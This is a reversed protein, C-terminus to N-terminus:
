YPDDEIEEKDLDLKKTVPCGYNNLCCQLRNGTKILMGRCNPCKEVYKIDNLDRMYPGMNADCVNCRFFTTGKMKREIVVIEGDSCKPCKIGTSHSVEEEFQKGKIRAWTIPPSIEKVNRDPRLERVFESEELKDMPTMLFVQNRTRTLAVYFLRREEAYPYEDPSKIYNLVPDDEIQSPFGLLDNKLNIIIVEDAELGKSQHVSMFRIKLEPKKTYTIDLHKKKKKQKFLTNNVYEDIDNNYRGLILIKLDEKNNLRLIYKIIAELHLAKQTKYRDMENVPYRIIKIPKIIYDEKYYKLKKNIQNDNKLIFKSSTDNIEQSNRRSKEIKITEAGKFYDNFDIFLNVDSGNFKYISQWDDGVAFVKANTKEKLRQILKTRIINIDQYEDILIYDYSKDFKGSEILELANTIERNHDIEDGQTYELYKRYIEETIDFFIEERKKTYADAQKKSMQRFKNFDEINLDNAEFINIFTKILESFSKFMQTRRIKLIIELIEKPDRKGITINNERLLEELKEFLRGEENYYSYTEILTTGYMEHWKIKSEMEMEYKKAAEANLWRNKKDKDVGFHELYIDKEALYFDPRYKRRDYEWCIFDNVITRNTQKRSSSIEKLSLFKGSDIFRDRVVKYYCNYPYPKEYEYDIDHIFLYNAIMLEEFSKVIEGDFTQKLSGRNSIYYEELQNQYYDSHITEYRDKLTNLRKEQEYEELEEESDFKRETAPPFYYAFYEFLREIKKDDELNEKFYNRIIDDLLYRNTYKMGGCHKDVNRCFGHFTYVGVKNDDRLLNNVKKDLDKAGKGTYCLCLIKEPSIGKREILYKVKSQLTFTKGTGAGAVIRLDGEDYVVARKKTIDDIEKGDIDEFFSSNERIERDLYSENHKKIPNDEDSDSISEYNLLGEYIRIFKILKQVDENYELFEKPITLIYKTEEYPKKFQDKLEEIEDFTIYDEKEDYLRLLEHIKVNNMSVSIKQNVNLILDINGYNKKFKEIESIDTYFKKFREEELNKYLDVYDKKFQNLDEHAKKYSKKYISDLQKNLKSIKEYKKELEKLDKDLDYYGDNIFQKYKYRFGDILTGNHYVSIFKFKIGELNEIKRIKEFSENLNILDNYSLSKIIENELKWEDIWEDTWNKLFKEKDMNENLGFEFLIPTSRNGMRNDFISELILELSDKEPANIKKTRRYIIFRNDNNFDLLKDEFDKKYITKIHLGLTNKRKFQNIKTNTKLQNEDIIIKNLSKLEISKVDSSKSNKLLQIYEDLIATEIKYDKYTIKLELARTEKETLNGKIDPSIKKLNLEIHSKIKHAEPSFEKSNKIQNDLILNILEKLALKACFLKQQNNINKIIISKDNFGVKGNGYKRLYKNLLLYILKKKNM